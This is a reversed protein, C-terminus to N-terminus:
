FIPLKLQREYSFITSMLCWKDSIYTLQSEANEKNNAQYVLKLDKVFEKKHKHSVYKLSNRVQHIICLQVETHPFVSNIAEPFGKLGDCCAILIDEVGRNQLDTLM